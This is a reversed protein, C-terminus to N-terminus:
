DRGTDVDATNADYAARRASAARAALDKVHAKAVEANGRAEAAGPYDGAEEFRGAQFAINDAIIAAVAVQEDAVTAAVDAQKAANRITAYDGGMRAVERAYSAFAQADFVAAEIRAEAEYIGDIADRM